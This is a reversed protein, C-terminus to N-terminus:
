RDAIQVAAPVRDDLVRVQSGRSAPSVGPTLQRRRFLEVQSLRRSSSVAPRDQKVWFIASDDDPHRLVMVRGHSRMWDVEMVQSHSPNPQVISYYPEVGVSQDLMSFEELKQDAARNYAVPELGREASAFTQSTSALLESSSATSAPNLRNSSVLAAPGLVVVGLVATALAGTIGWGLGFRIKEWGSGFLGARGRQSRVESFWALREEQSLRSDIRDWLQQFSQAPSKPALVNRAAHSLVQMDGIFRRAEAETALLREALKTGLWGCEGDSYSQLLREQWLSLSRVRARNSAQRAM